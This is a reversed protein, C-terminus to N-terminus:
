VDKPADGKDHKWRHEYKKTTRGMDRFYPLQIGQEGLVQEYHLLHGELREAMSLATFFLEEDKSDSLAEVLVMADSFFNSLADGQILVGPFKRGPARIIATNTAKSFVELEKREM